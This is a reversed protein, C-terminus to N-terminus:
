AKRWNKGALTTSIGMKKIEVMGKSALALIHPNTPGYAGLRSRDFEDKRGKSNCTRVVMLAAAEKDTLDAAPAAPLLPALTAPNVYITAYCGNGSQGQLHLMNPLLPRATDDRDTPNRDTFINPGGWSGWTTEYQGTALNILVNFGRSGQDAFYQLRFTERPQIQITKSGYGVAALARQVATPLNKINVYM